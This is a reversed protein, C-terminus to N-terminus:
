RTATPPAGLALRRELIRGHVWAMREVMRHYPEDDLDVLGIIMNEGDGRGEAPQDVHQHWHAGIVFPRSVVEELYHQVAEPRAEFSPVGPLTPPVQRGPLDVRYFWETVMSLAGPAAAAVADLGGFAGHATFPNDFYAGGSQHLVLLAGGSFDYDNFSLVDVYPVAALIADMGTFMTVFRAGLILVEPAVARLADHVVAFYRAAVEGTFARRDAVRGPAELAPDGSQVPPLGSLDQVEDFGALEQEWVANFATVDGAYREELFAQLALKGPARPPLTAFADLHPLPQYVFSGWPLENDTFVGICSPTAACPLAGAAEAMAGAEFAPDWYDRLDQSYPTSPPLPIVPAHRSFSLHVPYPLRERLLASSTWSGLTPFLWGRLREEAVAAWEEESGYRAENRDGYPHTGLAPSYDGRYRVTNPAVQFLGHGEPTVLWGVGDITEVRFRGTATTEVDLFGGFRDLLLYDLDAPSAPLREPGHGVRITDVAGASGGAPVAGFRAAGDRVVVDDKRSVAWVQLGEAHGAPHSLRATFITEPDRGADGLHIGATEVELRYDGLAVEHVAKECTPASVALAAVSVVLAFATVPPRSRPSRPSRRSPSPLPNPAREM